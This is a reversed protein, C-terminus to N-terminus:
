PQARPQASPQMTTLTPTRGLGVIKFATVKRNREVRVFRLHRWDRYLTRARFSRGDPYVRIKRLDRTSTSAAGSKGWKDVAFTWRHRYSELLQNALIKM